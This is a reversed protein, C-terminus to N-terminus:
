FSQKIGFLYIPDELFFVPYNVQSLRNIIHFYWFITRYQLICPEQLNPMLFLVLM